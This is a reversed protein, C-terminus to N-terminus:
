AISLEIHINFINSKEFDIRYGNSMAIICINESSKTKYKRYQGPWSHQQVSNNQPRSFGVAVFPIILSGQM